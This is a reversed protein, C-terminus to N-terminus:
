DWNKLYEDGFAKLERHLSNFQDVLRALQKRARPTTMRDKLMELGVVEDGIEYFAAKFDSQEPTATPPISVKRLKGDLGFAKSTTNTNTM